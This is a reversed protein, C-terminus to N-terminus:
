LFFCLIYYLIYLSQLAVIYRALMLSDTHVNIQESTTKDDRVTFGRGCLSLHVKKITYDGVLQHLVLMLGLLVLHITGVSHLM